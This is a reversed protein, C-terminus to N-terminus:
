SIGPLCASECVLVPLVALAAAAAVGAGIPISANDDIVEGAVVPKVGDALTAVLAAPVAARPPLFALGLALCVAFMVALVWWRKVPRLEGSGLLGSVPDAVTLMLVAPLAVRPEFAWIVVGAALVALAYGAPKHQEYERTLHEYIAWELGVFLRLVELAVALAMGGLLLWRIQGWTLVDLLYAGPVATGSVHVLRRAVEDPVIGFLGDEGATGASTTM